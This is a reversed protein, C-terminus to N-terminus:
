VSKTIILGTQPDIIVAVSEGNQGVVGFYWYFPNTTSNQDFIIKLYGEACLKKSQYFNTIETELCSFAIDIADAYQVQWTASECVLLMNTVIGDLTLYVSNETGIIREIDTMFTHDYPNEDLTGKIESEGIILTYSINEYDKKDKLSVTIIGFECKKNSIGDYAYSIERIGCMLNATLETNQGAFVNYRVDSLNDLLDNKVDQQCGCFMFCMACLCLFVCFKKM